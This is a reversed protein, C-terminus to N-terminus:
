GTFDVHGPRDLYPVKNTPREESRTIHLLKIRFCNFSRLTVEVLGPLIYVRGFGFGDRQFIKPRQLELAVLLPVDEGFHVVGMVGDEGVLSSFKGM